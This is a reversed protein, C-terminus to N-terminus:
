GLRLGHRSGPEAFARRPVASIVVGARFCGAIASVRPSRGLPGDNEGRGLGLGAREGSADSSAPTVGGGLSRESPGRPLGAACADRVVSAPAFSRPRRPLLKVTPQSPGLPGSSGGQRGAVISASRSSDVVGRAVPPPGSWSGQAWARDLPDYLRIETSRGSMQSRSRRPRAADGFQRTGSDCPVGSSPRVTRLPQPL